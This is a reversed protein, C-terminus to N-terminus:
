ARMQSLTHPALPDAPQAQSRATAEASTTANLQRETMDGIEDWAGKIDLLLGRVEMLMEHDDKIHAEFLRRSMYDYLSDLNEALEGGAERNLSSKLGILIIQVARAVAEGKKEIDRAIMHVSAQDIAKVAGEYLMTILKHPSAALVGTEAGVQAYASVGHRSSGFM